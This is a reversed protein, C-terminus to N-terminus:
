ESLQPQRDEFYQLLNRCDDLFRPLQTDEITEKPRFMVIWDGIREARIGSSQWLSTLEVIPISSKMAVTTQKYGMEGHNAHFYFAVTEVGKFTGV